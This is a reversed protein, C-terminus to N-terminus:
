NILTSVILKIVYYYKCLSNIQYFLDECKIITVSVVITDLYLDPFPYRFMEAANFTELFVAAEMMKLHFFNPGVLVRGLTPWHDSQYLMVDPPFWACDRRHLM